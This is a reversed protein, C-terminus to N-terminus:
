GLRMRVRAEMTNSVPVGFGHGHRSQSAADPAVARISGLQRRVEAVGYEQAGGGGYPQVGAM